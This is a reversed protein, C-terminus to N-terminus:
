TKWNVLLVKLSSIKRFFNKGFIERLKKPTKKAIKCSIKYIKTIHVLWANFEAIKTKVPVLWLFLNRLFIGKRKTSFISEVVKFFWKM